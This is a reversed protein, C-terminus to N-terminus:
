AGTSFTYLVFLGERTEGVLVRDNWEDIVAMAQRWDQQALWQGIERGALSLGDTHWVDFADWSGERRPGLMGSTIQTLAHRLTAIAIPRFDYVCSPGLDGTTTRATRAMVETFAAASETERDAPIRAMAAYPWLRFCAELLSSPAYERAPRAVVLEGGGWEGAGQYELVSVMEWQPDSFLREYYGAAAVVEGRASLATAFVRAPYMPEGWTYPFSIEWERSEGIASVELDHLLVLGRTAAHDACWRRVADGLLHVMDRAREAGIDWGLTMIGAAILEDAAVPSIPPADSGCELLLVPQADFSSQRHYGPQRQRLPIGLEETAIRRTDLGRRADLVRMPRAVSRELPHAEPCIRGGGAGILEVCSKGWRTLDVTWRAEDSM